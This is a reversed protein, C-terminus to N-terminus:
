DKFVTMITREPVEQLFNVRIEGTKPVMLALVGIQAALATLSAKGYNKKEIKINLCFMDNISLVNAWM